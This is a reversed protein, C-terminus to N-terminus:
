ISKRPSFSIVGAFIKGESAFAAAGNGPRGLSGGHSIRMQLLVEHPQTSCSNESYEIPALNGPFPSKTGTSSHRPFDDFPAHDKTMEVYLRTGDGCM